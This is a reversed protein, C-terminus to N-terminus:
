SCRVFDVTRELVEEFFTLLSGENDKRFILAM